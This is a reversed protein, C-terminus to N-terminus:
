AVENQRGSSATYNPDVSEDWDVHGHGRKEVDRNGEMLSTVYTAFENSYLCASGPWWEQVGKHTLLQRLSTKFGETSWGDILQLSEQVFLTEYRRLLGLMVLHFQYYDQFELNSLGNMAKLFIPGGPESGMMVCTNEIMTDNVKIYNASKMARTNQRLDRGLMLLSAVVAVGSVVESISAAVEWNVLFVEDRV